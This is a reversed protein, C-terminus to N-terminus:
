GWRGRWTPSCRRGSPVRTAWRTSSPSRKTSSRGTRRRSCTGPWRWCRGSSSTATPTAPVSRASASSSCSDSRGTETRSRTAFSAFCCTACQSAAGWDSCCSSPARASTARAGDGGGLVARSRATRARARACRARVVAPDGPAARARQGGPRGDGRGARAAREDADLLAGRHLRRGRRARECRGRRRGGSRRRRATRHDPIRDVPEARHRARPLATRALARGPLPARRRRGSRPDFRACRRDPLRRDSLPPRSRERPAARDRRRFRRALLAGPAPGLRRRRERGRPALRPLPLPLRPPRPGRAVVRPPRAAGLKPRRPPRRPAQLALPSRQADDRVLLASRPAALRRAAGRLDEPGALPLVRLLRAGDLAPPQHERTGAHGDLPLRRGDLSDLDALGRRARPARRQTHDPRPAAPQPAGEGPAGRPRRRRLLLVAPARGRTRGRPAGNRLARRTRGPRSGRVRPAAAGRLPIPRARCCAEDGADRTSGGRAARARPRRLAPRPGLVHGSSRARALRIMGARGARRSRPEGARGPDGGDLARAPPARRPAEGRDSGATRTALGHLQLADTAYSAGRALSGLLAWPHRGGISLNQRVALVPGREPHALPTHDLYQSLYYENPRLAAYDALAL